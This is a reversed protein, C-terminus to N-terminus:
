DALEQQQKTIWASNIQSLLKDPVSQKPNLWISGDDRKRYTIILEKTLESCQVKIYDSDFDEVFEIKAQWKQRDERHQALLPTLQESLHQKCWEPVIDISIIGSVEIFRLDNRRQGDATTLSVYSCFNKNSFEVNKVTWLKRDDEVCKDCIMNVKASTIPKIEVGEPNPLFKKGCKSCIFELIM